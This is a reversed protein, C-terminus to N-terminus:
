LQLNFKLMTLRPNDASMGLATAERLVQAAADKDLALGLVRLEDYGKNVPLRGTELEQLVSREMTQYASLELMAKSDITGIEPGLFEYVSFIYPSQFTTRLGREWLPRAAGRLLKATVGDGEDLRREAFASRVEISGTELILMWLDTDFLKRDWRKVLDIPSLNLAAALADVTTCGFNVSLRADAHQLSAAKIRGATVELHWAIHEAHAEITELGKMTRLKERAVARVDESPHASLHRLVPVESPHNGSFSGRQGLARLLGLWLKPSHREALKFLLDCAAARDAHYLDVFASERAEPSFRPANAVTLTVGNGYAAYGRNALWEAWLRYRQPFHNTSDAKPIWDSPHVTYGRAEALRLIADVSMNGTPREYHVVARFAARASNTM